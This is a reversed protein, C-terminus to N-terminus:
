GFLIMKECDRKFNAISDIAYFDRWDAYRLDKLM